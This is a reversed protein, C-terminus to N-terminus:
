SYSSNRWWFLQWFHAAFILVDVYTYMHAWGLSLDAQADACDSWLRQQGSSSANPGDSEASGLSIKSNLILPGTLLIETMSLWRGSIALIYLLITYIVFLSGGKSKSELWALGQRDFAWHLSRDQHVEACAWLLIRKHLHRKIRVARFPDKHLKRVICARILRRM